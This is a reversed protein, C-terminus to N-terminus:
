FLLDRHILQIGGNTLQLDDANCQLRIVIGLQDKLTQVGCAEGQCFAILDAIVNEHPKRGSLLVLAICVVPLFDLGAGLAIDAGKDPVIEADLLLHGGIDIGDIMREFSVRLFRM